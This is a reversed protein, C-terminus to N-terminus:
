TYWRLHLKPGPVFHLVLMGLLFFVLVVFLAAQYGASVVVFGFIIPGFVGSFKETLGQFGFLEAIKHKPALEVLLPRTVTWTGGLVAGGVLGALIYTLFTTHVILLVLIGAWTFLIIYLARRHGINDSLRGFFLSGLAATVAMARFVPFFQQISIGIQERGFLYLFIIVTNIADTYLLSALLFLWLGRHKPIHTLSYKVQVLAKKVRHLTIKTKQKVKDKLSLFTYSSVILFFLATAIFIAQSGLKTEWGYRRLIFYAMILSLIVGIYGFATGLGSIRAINKKTSIDFLKADYVDLAAHFFFNALAAFVLALLLSSFAVLFTFAVCLVTFFIIFGMRRKTQDSVAGIVPVLFAAALMSLGFVLGIHFENGGLHVKVFFPFFFTVFLASFATNALDYMSWAIVERKM